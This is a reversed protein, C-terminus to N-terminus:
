SSPFVRALRADRTLSVPTVMPRELPLAGGEMERIFAEHPKWNLTGLAEWDGLTVGQGEAYVIRVLESCYIEAEGPAYRFDYPLGWLREIPPMLKAADAAFPARPRWAEVVAGRGRMVWQWLPTYRVTGISEAVVWDGEKRMLIGCHSSPSGSVGEIADVLPGHPLSQFVVDGAQKDALWVYHVVRDLRFWGVVSLLIGLLVVARWRGGRTVPLLKM